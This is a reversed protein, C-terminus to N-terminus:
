DIQVFLCKLYASEPLGPPVPHDPAQRGIHLVRAFRGLAAAARAVVAIFDAEPMHYSCSSTVLLGGAHLCRMAERNLTLYGTAAGERDRRSKAFAPPDIIVCDYRRDRARDERLTEVVDGRRFEITGEVGNLVANRRALALAPESSDVATVSAAGGRAAQLAWGGSYSFGDFVTYGSVMTRLLLRNASQDFFHGTKQGGQLDVAFRLGEAEMELPDPPPGDPLEVVRPLGELERSPSDNRLVMGAPEAFERLAELVFPRLREMGATLIQVVLWSGFRDVILGPLFDGESYVLRCGARGPGYLRERLALAALLRSRVLEREDTEDQRSLLRAAILTHRNYYGSGLVRGRNDLVTAPAGPPPDGEAEVREIENSFVWLHGSRIRRDGGRRLHLKVMAPM